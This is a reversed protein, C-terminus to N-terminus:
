KDRYSDNVGDVFSVIERVAKEPSDLTLGHGYDQFFVATAGPISMAAKLAPGLPNTRDQAGLLLLTPAKIEGIRDAIRQRSEIIRNILHLESTFTKKDQLMQNKAFQKRWKERRALRTKNTTPPFLDHELTTVHEKIDQEEIPKQPSLPGGPILVSVIPIFAKVVEPHDLALSFGAGGWRSMGAYIFKGLGLAKSFAYIDDGWQKFVNFDKNEVRDSYESLDLFYIHYEKPFFALMENDKMQPGSGGFIFTEKGRGWEEYSVNIGNVMIKSM